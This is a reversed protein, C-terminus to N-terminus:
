SGHESTRCTASTAMSTSTSQFSALSRHSNSIVGLRLGREALAPLVDHVDDYLDFHHNSAWADYIERAAADGGRGQGGMHEIIAATYRIFLGHDYIPDDHDDLLPLARAVAAEFCSADVAM